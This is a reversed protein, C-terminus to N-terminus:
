RPDYGLYVPVRVETGSANRLLIEAEKLGPPPPASFSALLRTQLDSGNAKELKVDLFAPKRVVELRGDDKSDASIISIRELRTLRDLSSAAFLLSRPKARLGVHSVVAITLPLKYEVGRHRVSITCTATPAPNRTAISKLRLMSKGVVLSLAENPSVGLGPIARIAYPDDSVQEVTVGDPLGSAGLFTMGGGSEGGSYSIEIEQVAVGSARQSIEVSWPILRPTSKGFWSLHVVHESDPDDTVIFLQASGSGPGVTVMVRVSGRGGPPLDAPVKAVTCSCSSSIKKFHLPSGGRNEVDISLEHKGPDLVGLDNWAKVLHFQPPGGRHTCGGIGLVSAIVFSLFTAGRLRRRTTRCPEPILTCGRCMMRDKPGKTELPGDM